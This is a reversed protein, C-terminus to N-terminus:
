SNKRWDPMGPPPMCPWGLTGVCPWPEPKMTLASPSTSVLAWTTRPAVSTVTLSVSRRSNRALTSPASGLVSTVTSLISALFRGVTRRPLVRSRCTPSHTSAMPEGKPKSFLTVAPTTLALPRENGSSLRTGKMWVSTATFGPLEPPGSNLARPSTTPM